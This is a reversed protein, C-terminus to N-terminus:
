ECQIELQSRQSSIRFCSRLVLLYSSSESADFSFPRWIKNLKLTRNLFSQKIDLLYDTRLLKTNCFQNIIDIAVVM